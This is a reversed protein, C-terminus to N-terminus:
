MYLVERKYICFSFVKMARLAPWAELFLRKHGVTLRDAFLGWLGEVIPPSCKTLFPQKGM